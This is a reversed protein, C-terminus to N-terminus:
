SIDVIVLLPFYANIEQVIQLADGEFIVDFFGVEKGFLVVALALDL